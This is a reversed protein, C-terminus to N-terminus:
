SRLLKYFVFMETFQNELRNERSETFMLRRWVHRSRPHLHRVLADVSVLRHFLLALVFVANVSEAVIEFFDDDVFDKVVGSALVSGGLLSIISGKPIVKLFHLHSAVAAVRAEIHAVHSRFATMAVFEGEDDKAGVLGVDLLLHEVGGGLVGEFVLEDTVQFDLCRVQLVDSEWDDYVFAELRRGVFLCFSFLCLVMEGLLM